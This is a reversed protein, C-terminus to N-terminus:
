VCEDFLGVMRRTDARMVDDIQNHGAVRFLQELADVLLGIEVDPDATCTWGKRHQDTFELVHHSPEGPDDPDASSYGKLTHSITIM